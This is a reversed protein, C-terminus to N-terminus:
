RWVDGNIFKILAMIFADRTLDIRSIVDKTLINIGGKGKGLNNEAFIKDMVVGLETSLIDDVYKEPIEFGQSMGVGQMGDKNEIFAVNIDLWKGLFNTLGGESAIYFDAEINNQKAYEKVNKVRNQAGQYIEENTPQNSVNSEVPVGIIEVDEFYKGFAQKAGELKGPNKTGMLIKM